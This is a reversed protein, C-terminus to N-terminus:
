GEERGNLALMIDEKSYSYVMETVNNRICIRDYKTLELHPVSSALQLLEEKSSKRTVETATRSYVRRTYDNFYCEISFGEHTFDELHTNVFEQLVMYFDAYLKAMVYMAEKGEELTKITGLCLEKREGSFEGRVSCDLYIGESGGRRLVLMPEFGYSTLSEVQRHEAIAYEITAPWLERVKLEEVITMFLTENTFYM